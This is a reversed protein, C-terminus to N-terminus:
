QSPLGVDSRAMLPYGIQSLSGQVNHGIPTVLRLGHVLDRLDCSWQCGDPRRAVLPVEHHIARTSTADVVQARPDLCVEGSASSDVLQVPPQSVVLLTVTVLM